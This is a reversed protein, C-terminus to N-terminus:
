EMEVGLVKKVEDIFLDYITKTEIPDDIHFRDVFSRHKLDNAIYRIQTIFSKVSEERNYIMKLIDNLVKIFDGTLIDFISFMRIIESQSLDIKIVFDQRQPDLPVEVFEPRYVKKGEPIQELFEHPLDSTNIEKSHQRALIVGGFVHGPVYGLYTRYGISRLLSNIFIAMDDCDGMIKRKARFILCTRPAPQYYDGPPDSLPLMNQRIFRYIARSVSICHKALAEFIQKDDTDRFIIKQYMMHVPPVDFPMKDRKSSSTAISSALERVCSDESGEFILEKMIEYAEEPSKPKAKMKLIQELEAISRTESLAIQLQQAIEDNFRILNRYSEEDIEGSRFLGYLYNYCASRRQEVSSSLIHNV